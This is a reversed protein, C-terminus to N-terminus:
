QARQPEPEILEGVIGAVLELVAVDHSSADPLPEHSLCCLTGLLSGDAGHLPVGLYAGIDAERTVPLDRVQPEASVDPVLNEIRGDVMRRCYSAALPLRAGLELGFSDADGQLAEFVLDGDRFRGVFALDMGLRERTLRLIRQIPPDGARRATPGFGASSAQAARAVAMLELGDEPGPPTSAAAARVAEVGPQAGATETMRQTIQRADQESTSALVIAFHGGAIRGAVDGPRCGAALASGVAMLVPEPPQQGSGHRGTVSLVIVSTPVGDLRDRDLAERLTAHLAREGTPQATLDQLLDPSM